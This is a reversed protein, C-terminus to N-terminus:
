GSITTYGSGIFRRRETMSADADKVLKAVSYRLVCVMVGSNSTDGSTRSWHRAKREARSIRGPRFSHSGSRSKTELRKFVSIKLWANPTSFPSSISACRSGTIKRATWAMRYSRNKARNRVFRGAGGPIEGLGARVFDCGGAAIVDANLCQIALQM